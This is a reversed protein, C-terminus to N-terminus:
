IAVLIVIVIETMMIAILFMVNQIANMIVQGLQYVGQLVIAIKVTMIVIQLTAYQIVFEMVLNAIWAVMLAIVIAEMMIALAWM